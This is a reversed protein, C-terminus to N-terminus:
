LGQAFAQTWERAKEPSKDVMKEAEIPTLYNPSALLLHISALVENITIKPAWM